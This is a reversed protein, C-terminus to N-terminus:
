FNNIYARYILTMFQMHLTSNRICEQKSLYEYDYQKNAWLLLCDGKYQCNVRVNVELTFLIMENFKDDLFFCLTNNYSVTLNNVKLHCKDRSSSRPVAGCGRVSYNLCSWSYISSFTRGRILIQYFYRDFTM